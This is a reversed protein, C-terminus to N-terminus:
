GRYRSLRLALVTSAITVLILITAIANVRPDLTTRIMGWVLTPLTNGSGITFFTIVFDDISYAAALLAAGIVASSIIPFTVTLFAKLPTAGLDRASELMTFDFTSMRAYVVLVVFPQTVVVHSMIVTLLSLKLGISVYYSLLVIGTMLGPFMIPMCVIALSAAMPRARMRSIGIAAATGIATSAVAVTGAIMFSNTLSDHFAKTAFLKRYWDLTLSDIPLSILASSSFSFLIVLAIPAIMFAMLLGAWILLVTRVGTM